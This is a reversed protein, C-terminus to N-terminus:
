SSYPTRTENYNEYHKGCNGYSKLKSGLGHKSNAKKDQWKCLLVKKLLAIQKYKSGESGKLVIVRWGM